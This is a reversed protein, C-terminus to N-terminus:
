IWYAIYFTTWYEHKERSQNINWDLEKSAATTSLDIIFSQNFFVNYIIKEM